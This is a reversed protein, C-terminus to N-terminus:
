RRSGEPDAEPQSRKKQRKRAAALPVEDKAWLSALAASVLPDYKTGAGDEIETVAARFPLAARTARHASMTEVVDAVGIVRAELLIDDGVLGDPYGSGDLREHHQRVIEPIPGLFNMPRLLTFGYASHDQLLMAEAASLPASKSLLDSPIGLKGIDHLQAAIRVLDVRDPPMGLENALADSVRAVDHAHGATHADRLELASTLAEVAASLVRDARSNRCIGFLADGSDWRGQAVRTEVPIKHGQKTVLPVFCSEELGSLMRTVTNAVEDREDAPHLEFVSRGRFEAPTYGLQRNAEHNMELVDGNGDLVFLMDPCLEFFSRLNDEARRLASTARARSFAVGLEEGVADLVAREYGSFRHRRCSTVNLAGFVTGDCTLPVSAVSTFGWEVAHAPSVSAYDETFLAEGSAFVGAYAPADIDVVRVASIFSEPLGRACQVTATRASPDVVYIGGGDFDLIELVAELGAAMAAELSADRNVVHVLRGLAALHEIPVSSAEAEGTAAPPTTSEPM